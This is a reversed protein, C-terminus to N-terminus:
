VGYDLKNLYEDVSSKPIWYVPHIDGNSVNLAKLKGGKILKRITSDRGPFWTARSLESITYNVQEM